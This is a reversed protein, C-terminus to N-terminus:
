QRDMNNNYKSDEVSPPTAPTQCVGLNCPQLDHLRPCYKAFMTINEFYMQRLLCGYILEAILCSPHNLFPLKLQHATFQIPAHLLETCYFTWIDM